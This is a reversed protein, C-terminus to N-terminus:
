KILEVCAVARAAAAYDKEYTKTEHIDFYSCDSCDRSEAKKWGSYHYKYFVVDADSGNFRDIVKKIMEADFQQLWGRDEYLGFPVTILLKGKTKLLRKFEDIVILYDDHNAEKFKKDRSYLRTNDMGVHELTSICVIEDFADDKFLTSRLDGYVYSIRNQKIINEPALTMIYINRDCFAPSNLIFQFNLASGADLLVRKEKNLRSIAWPYEVVREDIRYGFSDFLIGGSKFQELITQDNIISRISQEKYENYGASWPKQGNKLYNKIKRNIKKDRRKVNGVDLLLKIANKLM